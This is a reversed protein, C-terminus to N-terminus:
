RHKLYSTIIEQKEDEPAADLAKGLLLFCWSELTESIVKEDTYFIADLEKIMTEKQQELLPSSDKGSDLQAILKDYIPNIIELMLDKKDSGSGWGYEASDITDILNEMNNRLQISFFYAYQADDQTIKQYAYKYGIRKFFEQITKIQMDKPDNKISHILKNYEFNFADVYLKATEDKIREDFDISKTNTSNIKQRIQKTIHAEASICICDTKDIFTYYPIRIELDSNHPNELVVFKQGYQNTEVGYINYAHNPRIYCNYSDITKGDKSIIYGPVTESKKFSTFATVKIDSTKNELYDIIGVKDEVRDFGPRNKPDHAYGGNVNGGTILGHNLRMDNYANFVARSSFGYANGIGKYLEPNKAVMEQAYREVAIELATIDPDSICYLTRNKGETMLEEDEVTEAISNKRAIELDKKTIHYTRPLQNIEPYITIYTGGEGDPVSCKAFEELGEDLNKVGLLMALLMCDGKLGQDVYDIKGNPWIEPYNTPAVFKGDKSFLPYKYSPKNRLPGQNSYSNLHIHDKGDFDQISSM